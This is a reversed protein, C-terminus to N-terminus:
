QCLSLSHCHAHTSHTSLFLFLSRIHTSAYLTQANFLLSLTHTHTHTDSHRDTHTHTHTHTHRYFCLYIAYTHLPMSHTCKFPSIRYLSLTHTHLILYLLFYGSNRNPEAFIKGFKKANLKM